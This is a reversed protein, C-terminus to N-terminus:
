PSYGMYLLEPGATSWFLEALDDDFYKRWEGNRGSRFTHSLRPEMALKLDSLSNDDIEILPAQRAITRRLHSYLNCIVDRSRDSILDEFKVCYTESHRLWPLYRRIRAGIDPYPAGVVGETDGTIAFRIRDRIGGLRKFHRHLRHWHNMGSLYYAESVVVDRPDRFIFYSVCQRKKIASSVIPDYFLHSPVLEGPLFRRIKRALYSPDRERLTISPTSAVFNELYRVNPLAAIIKTLLHTGSKPISNVLIPPMDPHASSLGFDFAISSATRKALARSKRVPAAHAIKM